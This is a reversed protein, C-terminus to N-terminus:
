KNAYFSRFGDTISKMSDFKPFAPFGASVSSTAAQAATGSIKGAIKGGIAGLGPGAVAGIAAGAMSLAAQKAQQKAQQNASQQQRYLQNLNNKIGASSTQMQGAQGMLQGAQGQQAMLQQAMQKQVQSQITSSSDMGEPTFAQGSRAAQRQSMVGQQAQIDFADEMAQQKFMQNRASNQNWLESSRQINTAAYNSLAAANGAAGFKDIPSRDIVASFLGM